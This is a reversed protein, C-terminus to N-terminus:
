DINQIYAELERGRRTLGAGFDVVMPTGRPDWASIAEDLDNLWIDSMVLKREAHEGNGSVFMAEGTKASRCALLGYTSMTAKSLPLRHIELEDGFYALADDWHLINNM